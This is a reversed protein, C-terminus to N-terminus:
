AMGEFRWMEGDGTPLHAPLPVLDYMRWRTAEIDVPEAAHEFRLALDVLAAAHGALPVAAPLPWGSIAFTQAWAAVRDPWVEALRSQALERKACGVLAAWGALLVGALIAVTLVRGTAIVAVLAGSVVILTPMDFTVSSGRVYSVRLMRWRAVEAAWGPARPPYITVVLHGHGRQLSGWPKAIYDRELPSRGLWALLRRQRANMRADTHM